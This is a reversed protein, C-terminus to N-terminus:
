APTIRGLVEDIGSFTFVTDPRQELATALVAAMPAPLDPLADLPYWGVDVSEEDNVQARGGVPHCRFSFELYQVRDGNPYTVQQCVTVSTLVDPVAIVGTEEQVERAAADAPHEGPDIIGGPLVWHGNDARRALLVHGSDDLVVGMATSLWLLDHGIRRRLDLVFDPTPM